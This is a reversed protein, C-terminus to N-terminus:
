IAVVLYLVTLIALFTPHSSVAMVEGKSVLMLDDLFFEGLNCTM